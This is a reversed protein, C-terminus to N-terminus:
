GYKNFSGQTHTHTHAHTYIYIYINLFFIEVSELDVPHIKQFENYFCVSWRFLSSSILWFLFLLANNKKLFATQLRGFSSTFITNRLLPWLGLFSYYPFYVYLIFKNYGCLLIFIYILSLFFLVTRTVPMNCGWGWWFFFFFVGFFRFCFM